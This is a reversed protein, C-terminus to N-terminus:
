EKASMHDYALRWPRIEVSGFIGEAVFPDANLLATAAEISEAEVVVLSGEPKGDADLLAGALRM